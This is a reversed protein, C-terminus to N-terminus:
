KKSKKNEDEYQLNTMREKMEHMIKQKKVCLLNERERERERYIYIYIYESKKEQM